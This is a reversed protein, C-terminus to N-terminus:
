NEAVWKSSSGSPTDGSGRCGRFAALEALGTRAAVHGSRTTLLGRIFSPRAPLSNGLPLDGSIPFVTSLKHTHPIYLRPLTTVANLGPLLGAKLSQPRPHVALEGCVPQRWFNASAKEKVPNQYVDQM